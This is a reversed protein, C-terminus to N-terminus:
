VNEVGPTPNVGINEVSRIPIVRETRDGTLNEVTSMKGVNTTGDALPITWFVNKKCKQGYSIVRGRYTIQCGIKTLNVTCGADCLKTVFILSHTALGPM